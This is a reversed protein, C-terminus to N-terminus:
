LLLAWTHEATSAISRLFETQGRLSLIQINRKQACNVDIHDLGTTATLIVKLRKAAEILECDIEFKLRTILVEYNPIIELLFSRTLEKEDLNGIKRLIIRADESYGVPEVNLIRIM